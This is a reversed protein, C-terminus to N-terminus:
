VTIDAIPIAEPWRTFRDIATLRHTYGASQPLPGAIDIQVYIRSCFKCRFV